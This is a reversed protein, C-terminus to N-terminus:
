LGQRLWCLDDPHQRRVKEISIPKVKHIYQEAKVEIENRSQSQTTEMGCFVIGNQFEWKGFKFRRSLTQVRDLFTGEYAQKDTLDAECELNEGGGIFDDVHLGLIGDLVYSQGDDASWVLFPDDGDAAIRYSLFCCRDLQHQLFGIEIMAETITQNWQRPARVDGFAPKLMQLIEDDKLGMMKALRRRIDKTPRSFIRVGQERIDKAQLFASKVDAAVMKWSQQCLILLILYRALRTLTPSAKEVNTSTVEELHFGQLIVRANAERVGDKMKWKLLFRMPCVEGAGATAENVAQWAQNEIWPLLAKTKAEDFQVKEDPTLRAEVVADRKAANTLYIMEEDEYLLLLEDDGTDTKINETEMPTIRPRKALPKLGDLRRAANISELLEDRDDMKRKEVIAEPKADEEKEQRSAELHPERGGDAEPLDPEPRSEAAAPQPQEEKVEREAPEAEESSRTREDRHAHEEVPEEVKGDTDVGTADMDMDEPRGDDVHDEPDGLADGVCDKYKISGTTSKLKKLLREATSLPLGFDDDAEERQRREEPLEPRLLEHTTRLLTNNHVCWIVSQRLKDPDDTYEVQTVMAPGKWYSKILDSEGKDRRWFYVYEGIQFEKALPRNRAALAERVARSMNAAFYAKAADRRRGLNLYFGEDHEGLDGMTTPEDAMNGLDRPQRGLARQAPTFGRVNRLRNRMDCTVRVTVKLSDDPRDEHYKAIQERRVQHNRELIGLRHHADRPILQLKIQRTDCWESFEESVHAGSQDARIRVPVGAWNIWNKEIAKIETKAKEDPVVTDVEYRSSEDMITFILKHKDNWKVHFTDIDITDNFGRDKPIRAIRVPKPRQRKLCIECIYIRACSVLRDDANMEKLAAALAESSPHGMQVHVKEVWKVEDLTFKELLNKWVEKYEIKDFEEQTMEEVAYSSENQPDDVICIAAQFAMSRPYNEVGRRNHAGELMVHKEKCSCRRWLGEHMKYKTTRVNTPKKIPGIRRGDRDLAKLGYACQDVFTDYGEMDQWVDESWSTAYRPHELHANRENKQQEDYIDRSFKLFEIKQKERERRRQQRYRNDKSADNLTNISSWLTCPPSIWVEEPRERRLREFFAERHSKRTFDWGTDLTYKDTKFDGHQEVYQSIRGKNVFIEWFKRKVKPKEDLTRNVKTFWDKLQKADFNTTEADEKEEGHTSTVYFDIEEESKVEHDGDTDADTSSSEEKIELADEPFSLLDLIMHGKENTEIDSWTQPVEDLYMAKKNRYDVVIGWEELCPRAVLLSVKGPVLYVTIERKTKRVWVPFTVMQKATATADNGFRFTKQCRQTTIQDAMGMDTLKKRWKPWEDLRMVPKTAGSDGVGKGTALSVEELQLGHATEMSPAIETFKNDTGIEYLMKADEDHKTPAGDRRRKFRPGHQQTSGTQTTKPSGDFHKGGKGGGFPARGGYRGKQKGKQAGRAKGSSSRGRGKPPRANGARPPPLGRKEDILAVVPYFGRSKALENMKARAEAYAAYAEETAEYANELDEPVEEDEEYWEDDEQYEEHPDYEDEYYAEDDEEYYDEMWYGEERSVRGHYTSRVRDIDKKHAVSDGGFMTKLSETVVQVTLRNNCLAKLNPVQWQPIAARTMMHWGALLDPLELGAERLKTLEKGHRLVYANLTEKPQRAFEGFFGDCRGPLEVEQTYRYLVDLKEFIEDFAEATDMREFSIEDCADWADGQLSQLLLYAGESVVPASCKAVGPTLKRHHGIVRDDEVVESSSARTTQYKKSRPEVVNRRSAEDEDLTAVAVGKVKDADRDDHM